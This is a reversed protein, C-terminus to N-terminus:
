RAEEDIAVRAAVVPRQALERVLERLQELGVLPRAVDALELVHDLPDHNELVLLEDDALHRARRPM